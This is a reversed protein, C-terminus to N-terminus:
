TEPCINSPSLDNAIVTGDGQTRQQNIPEGSNRKTYLFARARPGQATTRWNRM